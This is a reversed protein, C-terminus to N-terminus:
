GEAGEGAEAPPAGGGKHEALWETLAQILEPNVEGPDALHAAHWADIDAMLREAAAPDTEVLLNYSVAAERALDMKLFVDAREAVLDTREPLLSVAQNYAKLSEEWNELTRATQALYVAAEAQTPDVQLVARFNNAASQYYREAREEAKLRKKEDKAEAAKREAKEASKLDREGSSFALKARQQPSFDPTSFGTDRDSREDAAGTGEIESQAWAPAAALALLVALCLIWAPRRLYTRHSATATNM